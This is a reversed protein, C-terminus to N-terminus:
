PTLFPARSLVEIFTTFGPKAVEDNVFRGLEPRECVVLPYLEPCGRIKLCTSDPHGGGIPFPDFKARDVILEECQNASMARNIAHKRASYPGTAVYEEHVWMGARPRNSCGPHLRPDLPLGGPDSLVARIPRTPDGAYKCSLEDALWGGGNRGSFFVRNRDFCFQEALRDYLNEYFVVDVSYKDKDDFCRVSAGVESHGIEVPPPTLGVTIVTDDANDNFDLVNNARRNCGTAQFVLPYRRNRDYNAPLKVFYEREYSWPGSKTDAADAPKIGMTPITQLGIPGPPKGCGPSPVVAMISPEPAEADTTADGIETVDADTPMPGDSDMGASSDVVADASDVAADM